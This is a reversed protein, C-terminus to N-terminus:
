VQGYPAVQTACTFTSTGAAFRPIGSTLRDVGFRSDEELIGVVRKPEARFLFRSLAYCGIVMFGGGGWEPHNLISEPRSM